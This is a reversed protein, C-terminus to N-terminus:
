ESLFWHIGIWAGLVGLAPGVFLVTAIIAPVASEPTLDFGYTIYLQGLPGALWITGVSIIIIAILSGGIGYWFGTHLFPRALYAHTAGIIALVELEVQRALLSFRFTSSIVVLVGGALLLALLWVLRKVVSLMASLRDVWAHDFIVEDIGEISLDKQNRLKDALLTANQRLTLIITPPLLDNDSPSTQGEELGLISQFEAFARSPSLYRVKAVDPEAELNAILKQTDNESLEPKLFLTLTQDQIGTETLSSVSNVLIAVVGPVSIAFGILLCILLTNVPSVAIDRRAESFAFLHRKLISKM